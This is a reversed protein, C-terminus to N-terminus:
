VLLTFYGHQIAQGAKLNKGLNGAGAAKGGRGSREAHRLGHDGLVNGGKLAPKPTLSNWRVVRRSEIVSAPRM